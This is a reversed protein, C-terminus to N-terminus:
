RRGWCLQGLGVEVGLELVAETVVSSRPEM